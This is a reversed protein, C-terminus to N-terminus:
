VDKGGLLEFNHKRSSINLWEYINKQVKHINGEFHINLESNTTIRRWNTNNDLCMIVKLFNTMRVEDFDMTIKQM